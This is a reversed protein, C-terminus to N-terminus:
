RGLTRECLRKKIKYWADLVDGNDCTVNGSFVTRHKTNDVTWLSMVGDRLTLVSAYKGNVLMASANGNDDMGGVTWGEEGLVEALADASRNEVDVCIDEYGDNELPLTTNDTAEAIAEELDYDDDYTLTRKATVTIQLVHKM